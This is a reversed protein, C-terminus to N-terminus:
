KVETIHYHVNNTDDNIALAEKSLDGTFILKKM